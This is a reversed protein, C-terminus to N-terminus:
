ASALIYREIVEQLGHDDNSPAVVDARSRLAQPANGMAVGLGAYEIMALDNLNDGVAIIADRPVGLRTAM